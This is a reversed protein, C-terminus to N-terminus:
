PRIYYEMEDNDPISNNTMNWNDLVDKFYCINTLDSVNGGFTSVVSSLFAPLMIDNLKRIVIGGFRCPLFAIQHHCDTM